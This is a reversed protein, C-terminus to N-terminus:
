NIRAMFYSDAMRGDGYAHLKHTGEIVFGFKEYLHIASLNDTNVELEVRTLQLWDDALKVLADLLQSGIGRGWYDPHVMMGLGAAHRERPNQSQHLTAIGVVRGDVQAVYRYLGPPSEKLRDRTHGIEQSPLQLTTRGVDALRFIHYLDDLDDPYRPPRITAHAPDPKKLPRTPAPLPQPPYWESHRLRAMIQGDFYRGDGFVAKRKIGETAFGFKEYLHIAPTNHTYVELELRLLNLWDDALNIAAAMLVSGVGQGWFDPHVMLGVKGSHMLRPRLNQQVNIAGIVRGNLEAALRHRGSKPEQIWKQTEALEASPLHMLNVAVRPDSVIAYQDSADDPHLPRIILHNQTNM